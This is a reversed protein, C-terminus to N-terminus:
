DALAEIITSYINIQEDLRLDKLLKAISPKAHCIVLQRGSKKLQLATQIFGGLCRAGVRQTPTLDIIVKHHKETKIIEQVITAIEQCACVSRQYQINAAIILAGSDVDERLTLNSSGNM